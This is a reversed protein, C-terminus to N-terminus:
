PREAEFFDKKEFNSVVVLKNKDIGFNTILKQKMEEVVCIVKDYANCFIEEKKSWKEPHM